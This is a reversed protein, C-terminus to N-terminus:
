RRRLPLHRCLYKARYCYPRHWACSTTEFLQFLPSSFYVTSLYSRDVTGYTDDFILILFWFGVGVCFWCVVVVVGGGYHSSEGMAMM